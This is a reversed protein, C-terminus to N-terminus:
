RTKRGGGKTWFNKALSLLVLSAVHTRLEWREFSRVEHEGSLGSSQARASLALVSSSTIYVDTARCLIRSDGCAGFNFDIEMIYTEDLRMVITMKILHVKVALPDPLNLLGESLYHPHKPQPLTLHLNTSLSPLTFLM